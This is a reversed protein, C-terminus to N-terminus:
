KSLFFAKERRGPRPQCAITRITAVFGAPIVPEVVGLVNVLGVIANFDFQIKEQRAATAGEVL